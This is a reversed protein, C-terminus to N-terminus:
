PGVGRGRPDSGRRGGPGSAGERHPLRRRRVRWVPLGYWIVAFVVAAAIATVIAAAEGFILHAILLLAACMALALAALGAITLRNATLVLYEKDQTRFELRHHVTPAILLVSSLATCLLAGFYLKQEFATMRGYGQNFPVVLLFGFLVQVGPLAVRLEQLLENLNRDAREVETEQRGSPSTM